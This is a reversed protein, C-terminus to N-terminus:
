NLMDQGCTCNGNTRSCTTCCNCDGGRRNGCIKCGTIEKSKKGSKPIGIEKNRVQRHPPMYDLPLAGLKKELRHHYFIDAIICRMVNDNTSKYLAVLLVADPKFDRVSSHICLMVAILAPDSPPNHILESIRQSKKFSLPVGAGAGDTDDAGAGGGIDVDVTVDDDDDDDDDDGAGVGDTDDAGVVDVVDGGAGDDAGSM